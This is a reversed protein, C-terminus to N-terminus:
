EELPLGQQARALQSKVTDRAQAYGANEPAAAVLAEAVALSEELQAIAADHAGLRDHAIAVRLGAYVLDPMYIVAAGDDRDLAKLVELGALYEDRAAAFDPRRFKVHGLRIHAWALDFRTVVDSPSAAVLRDLLTLAKASIEEAAALDGTELLVSSMSSYAAALSRQLDTNVLDVAAIPELIAVAARYSSLALQTDGKNLLIDAISIQTTGEGTRDILGLPDATALGHYFAQAERYLWLGEDARLRVLMGAAMTARYATLSKLLADDPRAARRSREIALAAALHSYADEADEKFMGVVGLGEQADALDGQIEDDGPFAAAAKEARPFAAKYVDVAQLFKGGKVFTKGQQTLSLLLDHMAAADGPAAAARAEALAVADAIHREAEDLRGLTLAAKSRQFAAKWRLRALAPTEPQNRTLDDLLIATQEMLGASLDRPIRGRRKVDDEITSTLNEATAVAADLNAQARDRELTAQYGFWGAAAALGAFILTLTTAVIAFRRFARRQAELERRRLKDYPVGILGAVLKLKANDKGDAHERADAALPEALRGSLEGDPGLEYKLAPPFCELAPDAANPEGAVVIAFIRHARGLRKYTLIEENVWRSQAALPSCIVILNAAGELAARLKEGLDAAAGLEERDRFIPSLRAPVPGAEGAAGVLDRPVRYSELAKHLWDGWAKDAHRYSIFARYRPAAPGTNAAATM